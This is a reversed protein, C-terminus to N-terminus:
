KHEIWYKFCYKYFLYFTIESNVLFKLKIKEKITQM